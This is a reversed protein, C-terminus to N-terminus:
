WLSWTQHSNKKVFYYSSSMCEDPVIKMQLNIWKYDRSIKLLVSDSYVAPSSQWKGLEEYISPIYKRNQDTQESRLYVKKKIIFTNYSVRTDLSM